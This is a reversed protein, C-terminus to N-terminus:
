AADAKTLDNIVVTHIWSPVDDPNTYRGLLAAIVPIKPVQEPWDVDGDTIVVVLDARGQQAAEIGPAMDSGGGGDLVVEDSNRAHVVANVETDCAIVPVGEGSTVTALLQDIQDLANRLDASAMSGSTDIVIAPRLELGRLRPLLIRAPSRRSPRRYCYDSAGITRRTAQRIHRALVRRWDVKKVATREEAWRAAHGPVSGRHGAVESATEERLMQIRAEGLGPSTTVDAIMEGTLAPCDCGGILAADGSEPEDDDSGESDPVCGDDETGSQSQGSDSQEPPPQRLQDAYWEAARHNPLGFSAPTPLDNPLELDTLDDNIECDCAVAWSQDGIVPLWDRGRSAHGRLLHELGHVIRAALVAVSEDHVSENWWLRGVTDVTVFRTDGDPTRTPELAFLAAAYYPRAKAAV